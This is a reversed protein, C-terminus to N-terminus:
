MGFLVLPACDVALCPKRPPPLPLNARQFGYVMLFAM